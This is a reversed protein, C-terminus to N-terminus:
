KKKKRKKSKKALPNFDVAKQVYYDLDDELDYGSAEVFVFGKLPRGTFNMDTCGDRALCEEYADPGVRAMLEDKVIGLCMKENVMYCIGGFMKKELFLVNKSRLCQAIRDALYEDYAM